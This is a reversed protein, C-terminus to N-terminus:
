AFASCKETEFLQVTVWRINRAKPHIRLFGDVSDKIQQALNEVTPMYELPTMGEIEWVTELRPDNHWILFRHDYPAMICHQVAEKLVGFDVLMGLSDLVSGGATLKGKYNHGHFNHCKGEHGYLTHGAAFEFDINISVM